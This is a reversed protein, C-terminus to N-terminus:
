FERQIGRPSDFLTDQSVDQVVDQSADLSVNQSTDLSVNQSANRSVDLEHLEDLCYTEPFVLWLWCEDFKDCGVCIARNMM